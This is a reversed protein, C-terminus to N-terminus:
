LSLYSLNANWLVARYTFSPRIYRCTILRSNQHIHTISRTGLYISLCSLTLSHLVNIYYTVNEYLFLIGVQPKTRVMVKVSYLPQAETCQTKDTLFLNTSYISTVAPIRGEKRRIDNNCDCLSMYYIACPKNPLVPLHPSRKNNNFYQPCCSHCIIGITELKRVIGM